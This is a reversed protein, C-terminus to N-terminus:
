QYKKKYYELLSNEQDSVDPEEGITLLSYISLGAGFVTVFIGYHYVDIGSSADYYNGEGGSLVMLGIGGGTTLLSLNFMKKNNKIIRDREKGIMKKLVKLRGDTAYLNVPIGYEDKEVQVTQEVKQNDTTVQSFSTMPSCLIFIFLLPPFVKQNKM